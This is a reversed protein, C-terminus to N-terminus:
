FPLISVVVPLNPLALWNGLNLSMSDTFALQINDTVQQQQPQQQPTAQVIALSALTHGRCHLWMSNTRCVDKLRQVDDVHGCISAGLDAIVFLPTRNSAIDMAIM